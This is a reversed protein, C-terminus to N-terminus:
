KDKHYQLKFIIINRETEKYDLPLSLCVLGLYGKVVTLALSERETRFARHESDRTSRSSCSTLSTFCICIGILFFFFPPRKIM